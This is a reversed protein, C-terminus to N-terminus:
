LLKGGQETVFAELDPKPVLNHARTCTIASGTPTCKGTVNYWFCADNGFKLQWARVQTPGTPVDCLRGAPSIHTAIVGTVKAKEEGVGKKGGQGEAAGAGRVSNKAGANIARQIEIGRDRGEQAWKTFKQEQEPTILTYSLTTAMRAEDAGQEVKKLARSYVSAAHPLGAAGGTEFAVQVATSFSAYFCWDFEPWYAKAVAGLLAFTLEPSISLTDAPTDLIDRDAELSRFAEPKPALSLRLSQVARLVKKEVRAPVRGEGLMRAMVEKGRAERAVLDAAARDAVAPCTINGKALERAPTDAMNLQVVADPAQPAGVAGPQVKSRSWKQVEAPLSAEAGQLVQFSVSNLPAKDKM